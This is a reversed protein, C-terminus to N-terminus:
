AYDIREWNTVGGKGGGVYSRVTFGLDAAVSVLGSRTTFEKALSPHAQKLLNFISGSPVGEM